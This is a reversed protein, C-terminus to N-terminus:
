GLLFVVECFNLAFPSKACPLVHHALKSKGAEWLTRNLVALLFAVSLSNYLLTSVVTSARVSHRTLLESTTCLKNFLFKRGPIHFIRGVVSCFLELVLQRMETLISGRLPADRWM